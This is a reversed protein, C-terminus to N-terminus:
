KLFIEEITTNFFGALKGAESITFSRTGLEKRNYASITMNLMDALRKQSINNKSRLFKLKNNVSM